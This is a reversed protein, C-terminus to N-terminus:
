WSRRSLALSGLLGAVVLNITGPEPVAELSFTYASYPNNSGGSFTVTLDAPTDQFAGTIDILTGTGTFLAAGTISDYSNETLTELNFEFRNRPTTGSAGYGGFTDQQSFFMYNNISVTTPTTSLGQIGPGFSSDPYTVSVISNNQVVGAFSGTASQAINTPFLGMSSATAEGYPDLPLSEGTVTGTLYQANAAGVFAICGIFVLTLLMKM